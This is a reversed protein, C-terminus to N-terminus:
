GGWAGKYFPTKVVKAPVKKRHIQVSLDQGVCSLDEPVYAMAIAKGLSPSLTGSTIEGVEEKNDFSFVKYGGRAIGRGMICLGVWRRTLGQEKAQLISERGLFDGKKLKVVWGMGVEYPHIGPHIDLGYLPYKMDGNQPTDRAGLGIPKIQPCKAFFERWLVSGLNWPVFIEVGNEGTYGTRAVYCLKGRWKWEVFHFRPLNNAKLGLTTELALFSQPGQLALQSWQLSQDEVLVGSKKNILHSLVKEKNSANVCLLYDEGKKLCYLIFDELIGGKENCLFSYQSQGQELSAVDNTTIWQLYDLSKPGRIRIEGMHSVDFLGVQKRVHLHEQQIGQFSLPLRWGSFNVMKGGQELHPQFLDTKQDLPPAKSM